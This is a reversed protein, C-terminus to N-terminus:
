SSMSTCSSVITDESKERNQGWACYFGKRGDKQKSMVRTLNKVLACDFKKIM